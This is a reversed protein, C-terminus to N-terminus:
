LYLPVRSVSGARPAAEVIVVDATGPAGRDDGDHCESHSAPAKMGLATMGSDMVRAARGHRTGRGWIAVGQMLLLNLLLLLLMLHVDLMREHVLRVVVLLHHLLWLM